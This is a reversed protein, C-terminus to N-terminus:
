RASSTKEEFESQSIELLIRQGQIEFRDAPITVGDRADAQGASTVRIHKISGDKELVVAALKGVQEGGETYVPRLKWDDAEQRTLKLTEGPGSMGAGEAKEAGEASAAHPTAVAAVLALLSPYVLRRTLATLHRM